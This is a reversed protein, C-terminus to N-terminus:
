YAIDNGGYFDIFHSQVEADIDEMANVILSVPCINV